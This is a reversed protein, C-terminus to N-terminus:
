KPIAFSDGDPLTGDQNIPGRQVPTPIRIPPLPEPNEQLSPSDRFGGQLDRSEGGGAGRRALFDKPLRVRIIKDGERLRGVVPFGNRVKAFITYYGNLQKNQQLSIYFQSGNSRREPNVENPLRAWAIMGWEHRLGTIEPPLTYGPGGKGTGTVDGGQIVFDEVFRHFKTNNYKQNEVLYQFNRVSIPAEKRFLEIEFAGKTTEILAGDPLERWDAPEPFPLKDEALGSSASAHILVVLLVALSFFDFFQNVAERSSM